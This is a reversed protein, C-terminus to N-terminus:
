LTSLKKLENQINKQLAKNKILKLKDIFTPSLFDITIKLLNVNTNIKKDM